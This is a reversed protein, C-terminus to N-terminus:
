PLIILDFAGCFGMFFGSRIRNTHVYWIFSKSVRYTCLLERGASEYIFFDVRERERERESFLSM